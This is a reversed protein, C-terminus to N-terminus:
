PRSAPTTSKPPAPQLFVCLVIALGALGAALYFGPSFSGTSEAIYGATLPGLIQGIGFIFTILGFAESARAAGAYDGAAAAMIGPISWAVIGSLLVALYLFPGPLGSAVLLYSTLQLSFVLMLGSKRGIRDSLASFVPGSFLSLLGFFLWFNGATAESFGREHVMVTVIFTAFIVYTFGFLLYILGLYYYIGTRYVSGTEDRTRPKDPGPQGSADGGIRDLGKDAPRDRLLIGAILAIMVVIIGLTMWSLRWGEPGYLQNVYPIFKGSFMIAFGSGIVMYGAAKGRTKRTFWASVLAMLPINAAGSGIGTLAYLFLLGHFGESRSSLVMTTGVLLLASVILKRPSVHHGLAGSAIVAFLYGVFNVTGLLGMQSFSLGLSEGLSPLLMGLAFRGLGLCAAICLTGTAVIIWGYHFPLRVRTSNQM